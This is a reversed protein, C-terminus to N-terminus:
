DRFRALIAQANAQLNPDSLKLIVWNSIPSVLRGGGVITLQGDEINVWVGMTKADTITWCGYRNCTLEEGPFLSIMLDRDFDDTM